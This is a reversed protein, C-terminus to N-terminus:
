MRIEIIDVDEQVDRKFCAVATDDHDDVIDGNMMEAMTTKLTVIDGNLAQRFALLVPFHPISQHSPHLTLVLLCSSLIWTYFGAYLIEPIIAQGRSVVQGSYQFQNFCYVTKFDQELGSRSESVCM